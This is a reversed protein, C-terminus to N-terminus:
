FVIFIFCKNSKLNSSAVFVHLMNAATRNSVSVVEHSSSTYGSAPDKGSLVGGEAAKLAVCPTPKSLSHFVKEKELWDDLAVSKLQSKPSPFEEVSNSGEM